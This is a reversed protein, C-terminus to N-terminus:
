SNLFSPLAPHSSSEIELPSRAHFAAPQIRVVDFESAELRFLLRNLYPNPPMRRQVAGSWGRFQSRQFCLAFAITTFPTKHNSESGGLVQKLSPM